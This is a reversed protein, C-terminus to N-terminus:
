QLDTPLCATTGELTIDYTPIAPPFEVETCLAFSSASRRQYTIAAAYGTLRSPNSACDMPALDEPLAGIQEQLCRRVDQTLQRLDAIRAEDRREIQGQGPGGVSAFSLALVLAALGALGQASAARLGARDQRFYGLVLGALGAVVASKALFRSTMQGDLFTYILVLADGLLTLAAIFVALSSLWRRATGHPRAPDTALARRDSRDILWFVPTFVILGAMAWRLGGAAYVQVRDPDPLFIEIQAFALALVHGAVMGFTVFLLAHFLTERAAGSRVPRPVPGADPQSDTWGALAADTERQTWGAERLQDAIQPRPTGRALAERVFDDLAPHKTM